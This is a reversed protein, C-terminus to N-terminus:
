KITFEFDRFTINDGTSVRCQFTCRYTGKPLAELDISGQMVPSEIEETFRYLNFKYMEYQKGYCTAAQVTNGKKDTVTVTVSSIRYSAWIVGTFMNDTTPEDTYDTVTVEARPSADVLEKCTIPLYGTDYMLQFTWPEDVEELMCVEAGIEENYYTNFEVEWTSSQEIISAYSKEGNITGDENYEIHVDTVLAAHGGNKRMQVVADGGQMQAYCDYMRQQGTTECVDTTLVDKYNTGLFAYNGVKLCGYAETMHVTGAFSISNSVRGWAWFVSDACDNGIRARRNPSELCNGTMHQDTLGDLTYVGTEESEAYSLFSYLSGSGHTYPIGQYIQGKYFTAVNEPDELADAEVGLSYNKKSCSFTETPTWLVTMMSRMEDVVTKRRAALIEEETGSEEASTVPYDPEYGKTMESTGATNACGSLLLALLLIYCIVKKM